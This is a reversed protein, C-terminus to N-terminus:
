SLKGQLFRDILSLVRQISDSFVATYRNGTKAGERITGIAGEVVSSLDSMDNIMGSFSIPISNDSLSDLEPLSFSICYKGALHAEVLAMSDLGLFIDNEKMAQVWERNDDLEVGEPLTEIFREKPHPRYRIHIDETQSHFLPTVRSAIEDILRKKGMQLFFIGKFSRDVTNPQSILLLNIKGGHTNQKWNQGTIQELYPHGVAYVNNVPLGMEEFKCKCFEDICCTYDPLYIPKDESFFRDFGKWHDLLGMVPINLKKSVTILNCNTLDLYPSSTTCFVHTVNQTKLFTEWVAESLPPKGICKELSIYPIGNKSFIGQSLPHVLILLDPIKGSKILEQIVPSIYKGGGPDQAYVLLRDNSLLIQREKKM